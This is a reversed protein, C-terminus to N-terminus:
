DQTTLQHVRQFSVGLVEAADRVSLGHEVLATAAAVNAENAESQIAVLREQLEDRAKIARKIKPPLKVHHIFEADEPIQDVCAELAERIRETAQKLTRGQTHCGRVEKVSAVWYGGEDRSLQITYKTM